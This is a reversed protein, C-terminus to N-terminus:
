MWPAQLEEPLFYLRPLGWDVNDDKRRAVCSIKIPKLAHEILMAEALREVLYEKASSNRGMARATQNARSLSERSILKDFNASVEQRYAEAANDFRSWLQFEAIPIIRRLWEAFSNFYGSAAEAPLKNIRTGYLDAGLVVWRFIKDPMNKRLEDLLEVLFNLAEVEKDTEQIIVGRKEWSYRPGWPTFLIIEKKRLRPLVGDEYRVARGTKKLPYFVTNFWKVGADQEKM